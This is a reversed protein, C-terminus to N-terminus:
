LGKEEFRARPLGGDGNGDFGVLAEPKDLLRGDSKQEITRVRGRVDYTIIVSHKEGQLSEIPSTVVEALGLTLGDLIGYTVARSTDADDDTFYQYTAIDGNMKRLSTVPKGLIKEVETRTSGTHIKWIEAGDNSSAAMFVSCGSLCCAACLSFLAAVSRM